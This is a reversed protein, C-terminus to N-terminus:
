CDRRGTHDPVGVVTQRHVVTVFPLAVAGPQPGIGFPRVPRCGIGHCIRLELFTKQGPEIREIPGRHDIDRISFAYPLTLLLYGFSLNPIGTSPRARGATGLSPTGMM